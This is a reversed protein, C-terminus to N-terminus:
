RTASVTPSGTCSARSGAARGALRSIVKTKKAGAACAHARVVTSDIMLWERDAEGALDDLLAHWVGKEQWDAFRKYVSNWDGHTAPLLRWACGARTMWLVAEVFKRTKREQSVYIGCQRKLVPWIRRWQEDSFESNSM